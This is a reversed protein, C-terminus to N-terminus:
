SNGMRNVQGRRAFFPRKKLSFLPFRFLSDKLDQYGNMEASAFPMLYPISFSKLAAMHVLTLLLGVWLGFFGLTAAMILLGYKILRFSYVLSISPIAFTAISTMAVFIVVIPSVLGAEVAAQGIILGGVIGITGGSAPRTLGITTIITAMVLMAVKAIGLM